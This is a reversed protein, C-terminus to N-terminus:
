QATTNDRKRGEGKAEGRGRSSAENGRANTYDKELEEVLEKHGRVKKNKERKIHRKDKLTQWGTTM